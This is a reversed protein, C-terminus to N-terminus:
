LVEREVGCPRALLRGLAEGGRGVIPQGHGCCLVEIPLDLLRLASRRAAEPDVSFARISFSLRPHWGFRRSHTLLDGTFLVRGPSWYLCISGPTHGPTHLVQVGGLADLVDGDHLARTVGCTGARAVCAMSFRQARSRYPLLKAGEVYPAEEAHALVEAGSLAALRGASGTHDFHAHTLVIARLDGAGYGAARLEVLIQGAVGPVGSDILVVGNDVALAYACSGWLGEIQFVGPVIERM